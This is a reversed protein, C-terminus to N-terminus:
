PAYHMLRNNDGDVVWIGGNGDNTIGIALGIAIAGLDTAGWYYLFEGDPSFVLVRGLEPDTVYLNDDDGVELYPKNNLSNNGFWGSIGWAKIPQYTNGIKEFMQVRQNWADAIYIRGTLPSIAIGVPENFQGEVFGFEGFQTVLVGEPTYVNIRKNGTNTVFLNGDADLAIDRPGFLADPTNETSFVGWHRIYEGDSTFVQIRHNWTDAVYVFEGDASVVLSWPEKFEGPGTGDSGWANTIIGDEIHVIRHNQADAVFLSGDPALAIGRPNFLLPIDGNSPQLIDDPELYVYKGEYPDIIFAEEGPTVGYDWLEAVIDKRIYMRMRDSPNWNWLTMDTRNKAEAYATYDRAYWIDIIGARVAPDTLSTKMDEWTLNFYDQNPWWMRIYDFQYYGQAVVPEMKAYNNDGVLIIPSSRLENTPNDGYYVKKDYNRLYWTFPWSIDDDYAVNIALGDTTRLSIDEVQAMVEKVGGAAHAYVLYETADDYNIYAAMIAHRATSLGLVIFFALGFLAFVNKANWSKLLYFLAALSGLLGIASMIFNLTAQLQATDKGAFPPTVGYLSRTMGAIAFVVVPIVLAALWGRKEWVASWDTKKILWGVAWGSLLLMPLTIHVTLWPMKEGALTYAIFSSVTWFGLMWLAISRSEGQSLESNDLEELYGDVDEIEEEKGAKKWMFLRGIGIGGAFLSGILPLYEYIPVQILTYYYMPQSGRKVGQQELWYGLSGVLGTLFGTANTFFTTYFVIFIIYFIATNILYEKINWALGMFFSVLFLLLVFATAIWIATWDNFNVVEYGFIRMPFAALHPLILALYFLMMGFSRMRRLNQFGYGLIAFVLAGAIALGAGGLPVMMALSLKEAEAEEGEMPVPEPAVIVEETGQRLEAIKASIPEITVAVTLLLVTLILCVTFAMRYDKNKWPRQYLRVIFLLGLFILMQALYIFSTEKTTFHLATIATLYYLYHYKGTDLYRLIAWISVVGFFAVFAENRVYRGYYLMYPSFTFFLAAVLAGIRGLYKRYNWIFGITAINFLVAPIRATFDSDGFLTYAWALMHFQFPGHMLPTHSFGNGRYLLWSFYTHLSEDHSMVRSELDYFRTAVALIMIIAFLITEWNLPIAEFFSRDLWGKKDETTSAEM